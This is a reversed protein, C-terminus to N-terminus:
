TEDADDSLLDLVPLDTKDESDQERLHKLSEDLTKIQDKISDTGLKDATLSWISKRIV